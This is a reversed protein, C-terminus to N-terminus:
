TAMSLDSGDDIKLHKTLCTTVCFQDNIDCETICVFYEDLAQWRETISEHNHERRLSYM